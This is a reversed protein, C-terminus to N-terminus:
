NLSCTYGEGWEILVMTEGTAGQMCCHVLGWYGTKACIGWDVEADRLTRWEGSSSRFTSNYGGAGKLVKECPAM